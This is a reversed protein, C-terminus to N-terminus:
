SRGPGLSTLRREIVRTAPDFGPLPLREDFGALASEPLMGVVEGSVPAVGLQDALEAIRDVVAAIPVAVPDAVNTSVQARGALDIGIARVGSLGGGSERLKAAVQRAIEVDRTGLLVNFAALPARATVLVAGAQPHPWQPGLDAILERRRMRRTLEAPGGRRFFARERREETSALEGYLFVPIDLGAIKSALERAADRAADREDDSLYILPAVDLAGIMPHAGRRENVDILRACTAAGSALSDVLEDPNGHLTLVTRDHVADSHRDLILTGPPAPEGPESPRGFAAAVREILREDTGESFNPVALM